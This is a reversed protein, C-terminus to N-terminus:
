INVQATNVIVLMAATASCFLMYDSLGQGDPSVADYYTGLILLILRRIHVRFGFFIVSRFLSCYEPCTVDRCPM